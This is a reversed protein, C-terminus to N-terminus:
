GKEVVYKTIGKFINDRISGCTVTSWCMNSSKQCDLVLGFDTYDTYGIVACKVEHTSRNFQFLFHKLSTGLHEYGNTSLKYKQRNIIRKRRGTDKYGVFIWADYEVWTQKIATVKLKTTDLWYSEAYNAFLRYYKKYFEEMASSVEGHIRGETLDDKRHWNCIIRCIEIKNLFFNNKLM